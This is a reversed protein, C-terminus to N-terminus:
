LHTRLLLLLAALHCVFSKLRRQVPGEGGAPGRRKHNKKGQDEEQEGAAGRRSELQDGISRLRSALLQTTSSCTLPDGMPLVLTPQQHAPLWCM